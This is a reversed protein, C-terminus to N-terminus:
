PWGDADCGLLHPGQQRLGTTAASASGALRRGLIATLKATVAGGSLHWSSL